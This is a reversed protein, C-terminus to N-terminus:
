TFDTGTIIVAMHEQWTIIFYNGPIQHFHSVPMKGTILPGPLFNKEETNTPDFANSLKVFDESLSFTLQNRNKWGISYSIQTGRDTM